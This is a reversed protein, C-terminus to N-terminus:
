AGKKVDKSYVELIKNIIDWNGLYMQKREDLLKDIEQKDGSNMAIAIKTSMIEIAIDLKVNDNM